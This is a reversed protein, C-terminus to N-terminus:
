VAPLFARSNTIRLAWLLPLTDVQLWDTIAYGSRLLSLRFEGEAMTHASYDPVGHPGEVWAHAPASLALLATVSLAKVM